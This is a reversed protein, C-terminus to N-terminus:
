YIISLREHAYASTQFVQKTVDPMTLTINFNINNWESYNTMDIRFAPM